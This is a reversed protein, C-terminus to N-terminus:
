FRFVVGIIQAVSFRYKQELYNFLKSATQGALGKPANIAVPDDAGALYVWGALLKAGCCDEQQQDSLETLLDM